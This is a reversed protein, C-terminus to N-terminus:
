RTVERFISRVDNPGGFGGAKTILPLGPWRGDLLVGRPIGPRVEGEIRLMRARLSDCVAEATSGGCAFIGALWRGPDLRRFLRAIFKGSKQPFDRAFDFPASILVSRNRGLAEQIEQLTARVTRAPLDPQWLVCHVAGNKSLRAFQEHSIAQRSGQIFLWPRPSKRMAATTARARPPFVYRALGASGAWLIKRPTHGLAKGIAALDRDKAADIVVFVAESAQVARRIAAAGRRVTQLRILCPNGGLVSRLHQPLNPWRRRNKLPEPVVLWGNRFARGRAPFAPCILVRDAKLFRELAALETAWHGRLTSDMKFYAVNWGRRTLARAAAVARAPARAPTAARSRTNIVVIDEACLGRLAPASLPGLTVVPRYGRAVLRGAVDCAGTLDDAIIGFRPPMDSLTGLIPKSEYAPWRKGHV